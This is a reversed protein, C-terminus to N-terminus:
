TFLWSSVGGRRALDAIGQDLAQFGTATIQDPLWTAGSKALRYPLMMSQWLDPDLPREPVSSLATRRLLPQQSLWAHAAQWVDVSSPMNHRAKLQTVTLIGTERVHPGIELTAVRQGRRRVSFLRCKDRALRDAYQDACNQMAKAEALIEQSELLPIFTCGMAEGQQLWPDALVGERLQISLRVRNLWCKAACVATDFALEPRWPVVVLSHARTAEATSFWAYASLAALLRVPDSSSHFINQQALWVAFFENCAENGFSVCRLWAASEVATAPMHNTIRRAFLEARPYSIDHGVFAEPPLRRLWMPLALTRAADKIEVGAEILALAKRRQAISGHRAALTYAIAPFVRAVDAFRPSQVLRQLAPRVSPHYRAILDDAAAAKLTQEAPKATEVPAVVLAKTKSTRSM